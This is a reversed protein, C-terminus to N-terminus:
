WSTDDKYSEIKSEITELQLSTESQCVPCLFDYMTAMSYGERQREADSITAELESKCHWCTFLFPANEKLEVRKIVKIM